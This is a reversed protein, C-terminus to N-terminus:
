RNSMAKKFDLLRHADALQEVARVELCMPKLKSEFVKGVVQDKIQQPLASVAIAELHKEMCFCTVTFFGPYVHLWGLNKKKAMLKGMWAQGDNYYRWEIGTGADTLEKELQEYAPFSDKLVTSLVEPTPFQEKDKLAFSEM